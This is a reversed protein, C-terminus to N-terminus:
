EVNPSATTFKRAADAEDAFDFTVQISATARMMWPATASRQGLYRAMVAHRPRPMLEIAEADALPTVGAALWAVRAPDTVARLENLHETLEREIEDLNLSPSTSLEVQGGPELSVTAGRRVLTTLHGEEHHPQWGFRQVLSTLLDRIGGPEGYTLPRGTSREVLFKEFEAGVRWRAPPKGAHHFYAALDAVRVPPLEEV